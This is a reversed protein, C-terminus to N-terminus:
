DVNKFENKVLEVLAQNGTLKLGGTEIFYFAVGSFL